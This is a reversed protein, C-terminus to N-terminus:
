RDGAGSDGIQVYGDIRGLRLLARQVPHFATLGTVADMRVPASVAYPRGRWILTGGGAALLNQYWDVQAGFALAIVFGGTVRRAAVPTAYRRGSQRGRHELVAFIPNWRKGALPKTLPSTLRALRWLM